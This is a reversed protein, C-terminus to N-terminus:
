GRNKPLDPLKINKAMENVAATKEPSLKPWDRNDLKNDVRFRIKQAEEVLNKM